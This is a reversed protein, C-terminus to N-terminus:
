KIGHGSKFKTIHPMPLKTYLSVYKKKKLKLIPNLNKTTFQLGLIEFM